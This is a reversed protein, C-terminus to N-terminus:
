IRRSPSRFVNKPYPMYNAHGQVPFVETCLIPPFVLVSVLGFRVFFGRLVFGFFWWVWCIDSTFGELCVFYIFTKRKGYKQMSDLFGVEEWM